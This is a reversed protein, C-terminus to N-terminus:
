SGYPSEPDPESYLAEHSGVLTTARIIGYVTDNQFIYFVTTSLLSIIAQAPHGFPDHGNSEGIAPLFGPNYAGSVPSLSLVDIFSFILYVSSGTPFTFTTASKKGEGSSNARLSSVTLTVMESLLVLTSKKLPLPSSFLYGIDFFSGFPQQIFIYGTLGLREMPQPDTRDDSWTNFRSIAGVGFWAM